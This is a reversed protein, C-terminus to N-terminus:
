EEGEKPSANSFQQDFLEKIPKISLGLYAVPGDPPQASFNSCKFCITSEFLPRRGSKDRAWVRIAHGPEHCLVGSTEGGRLMAGLTAIWDGSAPPQLTAERVIIRRCHAFASPSDATAPDKLLCVDVAVATALLEALGTLYRARATEV